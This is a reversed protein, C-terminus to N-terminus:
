GLLIEMFMDKSMRYRRQFIEAYTAGYIYCDTYLMTHEEM